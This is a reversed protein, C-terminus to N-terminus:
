QESLNYKTGNIDLTGKYEYLFNNPLDCDVQGDFTTDLMPYSAGDMFFKIRMGKPASRKKLNKEGDLQSTQM